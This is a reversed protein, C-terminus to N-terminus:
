FKSCLVTLLLLFFTRDSIFNNFLLTQLTQSKKKPYIITESKFSKILIIINCNKFNYDIKEGSVQKKTGFQEM